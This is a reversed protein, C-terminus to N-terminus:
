ATRLHRSQKQRRALRSSVAQSRFSRASRLSTLASGCLPTRNTAIRRGFSDLRSEQIARQAFADPQANTICLDLLARLTAVDGVEASLMLTLLRATAYAGVRDEALVSRLHGLAAQADNSSLAALAAAYTQETENGPPADVLELRLRVGPKAPWDEALQLDPLALAPSAEPQSDGPEAPRPSPQPPQGPEATAAATVAVAVAPRKRRGFAWSAALFVVAFPLVVAILLTTLLLKGLSVKDDLFVVILGLVVAVIAYVFAFTTTLVNAVPVM